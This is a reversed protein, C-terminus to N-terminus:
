RNWVRDHGAKSAPSQRDQYAPHFCGFRRKTTPQEGGGLAKREACPQERRSSPTFKLDLRRNLPKATHARPGDAGRRGQLPKKGRTVRAGKSPVRGLSEARHAGGGKPRLGQELRAEVAVVFGDDGRRPPRQRADLRIRAM